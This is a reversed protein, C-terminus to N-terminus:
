RRRRRAIGLGAVGLIALGGPTPVSPAFTDLTIYEGSLLNIRVSGTSDYDMAETRAFFFKSEDVANPMDATFLYGLAVDDATRSAHTPGVEGLGDVRWEVGVSWGEFGTVVVSSIEGIGSIDRIRWSFDLEGTDHRQAVRSQISAHFTSGAADVISFDQLWDNLITAGLSPDEAHTIGTLPLTDGAFIDTVAASAHSQAMIAAAAITYTSLRM